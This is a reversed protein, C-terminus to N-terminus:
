VEEKGSDSRGTSRGGPGAQWQGGTSEGAAAGGWAGGGAAREGLSLADGIGPGWLQGQCFLCM